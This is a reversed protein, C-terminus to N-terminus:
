WSVRIWTVIIQQRFQYLLRRVPKGLEMRVLKCLVWQARKLAHTLYYNFDDLPKKECESYFGFM